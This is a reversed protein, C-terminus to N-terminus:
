VFVETRRRKISLERVLWSGAQIQDPPPIPRLACHGPRFFYVGLVKDANAGSRLDSRHPRPNRGHPRGCIECWTLKDNHEPWPPSARRLAFERQIIAVVPHHPARRRSNASVTAFTVSCISHFQFKFCDFRPARAKSDINRAPITLISKCCPTIGPDHWVFACPILESAM